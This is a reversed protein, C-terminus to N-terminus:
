LREIAVPDGVVFGLERVTGAAVELVKDVDEPPYYVKLKIISEGIQPDLNESFGIIREGRIWVIDIPFKMDRMWFGYRSATEFLFLMGQEPGLGGRGSLGKARTSATDAIEVSFKQNAIRALAQGKTARFDFGFFYAGGIIFLITVIIAFVTFWSM